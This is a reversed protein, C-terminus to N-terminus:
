NDKYKELVETARNILKDFLEKERKTTTLWLEGYEKVFAQYLLNDDDTKEIELIEAM